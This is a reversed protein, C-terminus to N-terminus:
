RLGKRRHYVGGTEYSGTPGELEVLEPEEEEYEDEEEDEEIEEMEVFEEREQREERGSIGKGLFNTIDKYIGIVFEKEGTSMRVEKPEIRVLKFGDIVEGEKLFTADKKGKILAKKVEGTIVVGLLSLGSSMALGEDMEKGVPQLVVQPIGEWEKRDSSFINSTVIPAYSAINKLTPPSIKEQKQRGETVVTEIESPLNVEALLFLINFIILGIAAASLGINVFHIWGKWGRIKRALIPGSFYIAKGKGIEM